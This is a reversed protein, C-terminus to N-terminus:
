KYKNWSSWLNRGVFNMFCSQIKWEFVCKWIEWLKIMSKPVFFWKSFCLMKMVNEIVFDYKEYDENHKEYIGAYFIGFESFFLFYIMFKIVFFCIQDHFVNEFWLSLWLLILLLIFPCINKPNSELSEIWDLCAVVVEDTWFVGVLLVLTPTKTDNDDNNCLQHRCVRQQHIWFVPSAM